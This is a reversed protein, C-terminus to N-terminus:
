ERPRRRSPPPGAAVRVSSRPRYRIKATGGPSYTTDAATPLADVASRAPYARANKGPVDFAALACNTATPRECSTVPISTASDRARVARIAPFTTFAAPTGALGPLRVSIALAFESETTLTGLPARRVPSPANSNGLTGGPM